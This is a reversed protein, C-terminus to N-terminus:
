DHHSLDQERRTYEKDIEPLESAMGLMYTNVLLVAANLLPPYTQLLDYVQRTSKLRGATGFINDDQFPQLSRTAEGRKLGLRSLEVWKGRRYLLWVAKIGTRYDICEKCLKENM